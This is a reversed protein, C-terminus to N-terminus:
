HHYLMRFTLFNRLEVYQDISQEAGNILAHHVPSTRSVNSVAAEVREDRYAPETVVASRPCPQVAIHCSQRLIRRASLSM